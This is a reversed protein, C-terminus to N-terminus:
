PRRRQWRLRSPTRRWLLWCRLRPLMARAMARRFLQEHAPQQLRMQRLEATTMVVRHRDDGGSLARLQSAADAKAQAEACRTKGSTFSACAADFGGRLRVDTRQRPRLLGV